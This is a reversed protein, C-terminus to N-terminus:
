KSPEALKCNKCERHKATSVNYRNCPPTTDEMAARMVEDKYVSMTKEKHRRGYEAISAHSGREFPVFSHKSKGHLRPTYPSSLYAVIAM